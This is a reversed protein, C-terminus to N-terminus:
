LHTSLNRTGDVGPGRRENALRAFAHKAVSLPKLSVRLIPVPMTTIPSPTAWDVPVMTLMDSCLPTALTARM